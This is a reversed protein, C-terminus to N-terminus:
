EKKFRYSTGGQNLVMGRESLSFEITIGAQKFEYTHEGTPELPFPSQGTAQAYLQDGNQTVTIKLPVSETAYIGLYEPIYDPNVEYTEFTPISYPRGFAASLMTITIDNNEINTGNSTIAYSIKAEEFHGFVALFGDIGGTHGYGSNSYFPVQFLGSGYGEKITKLYELSEKQLLQGGFLADAFQTLDGSTSVLAGAGLPVSPHTEGAHMWGALLRYSKAENKTPDITGGYATNQLGLPEVIKKQILNPYSTKYLDELIFTLLIYNSNSYSAKADPSFDSGAAQITKLLDERSNEKFYYGMYAQDDTINHIGSRHNLLLSVPISEANVIGSFYDSLPNSLSLLGEEVAKMTLVATFTKSISGIRYKTNQDAKLENEVDRFGVSRQYLIAGDKALAVSGLFKNNTELADFYQNLKQTDLEQAIGLFSIGFALCALLSHKKM